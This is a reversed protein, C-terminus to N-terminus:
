CQFILCLFAVWYISAVESLEHLDNRKETLVKQSYSASDVGEPDWSKYM